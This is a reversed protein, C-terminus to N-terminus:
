VFESDIFWIVPGRPKVRAAPYLQSAKEQDDLIARVTQKKGPGSVLFVVLSARNIVPLTLTIRDLPAKANQSSVAAVWREKEDLVDEGPFLSATHGDKGVGLLMLDFFPLLDSEGSSLPHTGNNRLQRFFDRLAQEYAEAAEEPSEVEGPIRHINRSPVPVKSILTQYAMFFNSDPSDAPVCREDGWFLHIQRWPVVSDFPSRALDEYLTRPTNGGSLVITVIGQKSVFGKALECIFAAAARSLEHINPYCRVNYRM